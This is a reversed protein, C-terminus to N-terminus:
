PISKRRLVKVNRDLIQVPEKEFMLDPRVEIEEVPMIHTPDSRYCRPSLKGKRSFRLVKKWLAVKLFVVDGISYEIDKRKLDAYFKQRDSAAKLRDQFDIICGRLMDELIQIVRELQGDTGHLRVIESIYLKALKQLSFCTRVLIFYAAKTLRDVVVWVPDKKTPTLPLGSVFDITVREWTWMPIKVSERKLGPWWSLERLDRYMKNGGLHMVYPSSHAERLILLRLGEDNPVCIWGPFYLVGKSNIEFDTTVGDEVQRFRLELSKDRM